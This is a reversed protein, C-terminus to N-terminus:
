KDKKTASKSSDGSTNHSQANGQCFESDRGTAGTSSSTCRPHPVTEGRLFGGPTTETVAPSEAQTVPIVADATVFVFLIMYCFVTVDM